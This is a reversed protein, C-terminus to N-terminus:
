RLAPKYPRCYLFFEDLNEKDVVNYINRNFDAAVSLKTITEFFTGFEDGILEMLRGQLAEDELVEDKLKVTQDENIMSSYHEGLFEELKVDDQSNISFRNQTVFKIKEENGLVDYSTSFKNNRGDEDQLPRIFSIIESESHKMDTEAVKMNKKAKVFRDIVAKIEVSAQITRGEKKAKPKKETRTEKLADGFGKKKPLPIVNAIEAM